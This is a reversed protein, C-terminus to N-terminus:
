GPPEEVPPPDAKNGGCGALLTLSLALTWARPM